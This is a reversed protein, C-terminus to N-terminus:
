AFFHSRLPTPIPSSVSKADVYISLFNRYSQNGSETLETLSLSYNSANPWVYGELIGNLESRVEELLDACGQNAALQTLLGQNEDKTYTRGTSAQKPQPEVDVIRALLVGEDSRFAHFTLLRVDVGVGALFEVMRRTRDDVGLGVLVARPVGVFEDGRGPRNEQYWARFDEIKDVGRTGSNREIHSAIADASLEALYSVYDVVQAVADRTLTGRKLEFVVLRGDGDIGLLDLPGGATPNQRGVLLLDDGLLGPEQVLLDELMEETETEQVAEHTTAALSKGEGQVRWLRVTKM